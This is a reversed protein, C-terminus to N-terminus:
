PIMKKMQEMSEQKLTKGNIKTIQLNKKLECTLKARWIKTDPIILRTINEDNRSGGYTTAHWSVGVM